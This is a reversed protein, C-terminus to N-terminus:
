LKIVHQLYFYVSMNTENEDLCKGDIKGACKSKKKEREDEQIQLKPYTQSLQISYLSIISSYQTLRTSQQQIIYFLLSSFEM